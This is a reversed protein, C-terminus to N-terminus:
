ARQVVETCQLSIEGKPAGEFELRITWGRSDIPEAEASFLLPSGILDEFDMNIRVHCSNRFCLFLSPQEDRAPPLALEITLDDGQWSISRVRADGLGQEFMKLVAADMNGVERDVEHRLVM